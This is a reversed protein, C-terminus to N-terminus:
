ESAAVDYTKSEDAIALDYFHSHRQKIKDNNPLVYIRAVDIDGANLTVRGDEITIDHDIIGEPTVAHAGQINDLWAPIDLSLKVDEHTTFPYGEPHLEYNTNTCCLVLANPTVLPVVDLKEPGEVELHIPDSRLLDSRVTRMVRGWHQHAEVADPYDEAAKEDWNFWLIGKAGYALNLMLQAAIEEPTPCYRKSRKTWDAIGQTWVWIPKPESAEKLDRTYYGTEELYTGYYKPWVTSTPASVCYHDHVPIDPISAYEFFKAARCLTIMTPKYTNLQKTSEEAFLMVSPLTNWDPENQLMWSLVGPEKGLTRIKDFERGKDVFTIAKFGYKERDESYFKDSPHGGRMFTDIHLSKFKAYKDTDSNWIGIPFEDLFARRHSHIYRAEGAEEIEVRLILLESPRLPEPVKLIDIAHNKGKYWHLDQTPKGVLEANIVNFDEDGKYRVHFMVMDMVKPMVMSSVRAPDERLVGKAKGVPLWNNGTVVLNVDTGESLQADVANIELVTSQGPQLRHHYKRHWAVYRGLLWYSEDHKNINYFKLEQEGDSVNTMYIHLLGGENDRDVEFETLAEKEWKAGRFEIADIRISQTKKTSLDVGNQLTQGFTASAICLAGLVFFISRFQM